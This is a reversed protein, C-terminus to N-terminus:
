PIWACMPLKNFLTSQAFHLIALYFYLGYGYRYKNVRQITANSIYPCKFLVLALSGAAYQLSIMIVVDHQM